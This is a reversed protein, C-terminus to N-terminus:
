CAGTSLFSSRVSNRTGQTQPTLSPPIRPPPPRYAQYVADPAPQWQMPPPQYPPQAPPVPTAVRTDHQCAVLLVSSLALSRRMLGGIRAAIELHQERESACPVSSNRGANGREVRAM